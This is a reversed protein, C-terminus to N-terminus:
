VDGGDCSDDQLITDVRQCVSVSRSLTSLCHMWCVLCCRDSARLDTNREHSIVSNSGREYLETWRISLATKRVYFEYCYLVKDGRAMGVLRRVHGSVRIMIFVHRSKNRPYRYLPLVELLAFDRWASFQCDRDFTGENTRESRRIRKLTILAHFHVKYSVIRYVLQHYRSTRIIPATQLCLCHWQM